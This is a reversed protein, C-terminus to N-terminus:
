PATNGASGSSSSGAAATGTGRTPGPYIQADNQGTFLGRLDEVKKLGAREVLPIMEESVVVAQELGAVTYAVILSTRVNKDWVVYGKVESRLARLAEEPTRLEAFTYHRKRRTSITSRSCTRSRGTTPIFFISARLPRTRSGRSASISRRSMWSVQPRGLRGATNMAFAHRTGARKLM